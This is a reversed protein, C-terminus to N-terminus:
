ERPKFLRRALDKFTAMVMVLVMSLFFLTVLVIGTMLIINLLIIAAKNM